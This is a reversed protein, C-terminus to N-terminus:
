AAANDAEDILPNADPVSLGALFARMTSLQMSSPVWGPRKSQKLISAVFDYGWDGRCIRGASIALGLRHICEDASPHPKQTM